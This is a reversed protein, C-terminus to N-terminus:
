TLTVLDLWSKAIDLSYIWSFKNLIWDSTWFINHLCSLTIGIGIPDAGLDIHKDWRLNPFMIFMILQLKPINILRNRKIKCINLKTKKKKKEESQDVFQKFITYVINVVLLFQWSPVTCKILCLSATLSVFLRSLKPGLWVSTSRFLVWLM